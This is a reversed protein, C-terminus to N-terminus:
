NVDPSVWYSVANATLPDFNKDLMLNMWAKLDTRINTPFFSRQMLILRRCLPAVYVADRGIDFPVTTVSEGAKTSFIVPDPGVMQFLKTMISNSEGLLRDFAELGFNEKEWLSPRRLTDQKGSYCCDFLMLHPINANQLKSHLDVAVTSFKGWDEMSINAPKRTFDGNPLYLVQLKKSSFGHGAYYFLLASNNIKAKQINSIMLDVAEIINKSHLFKQSTSKLMFGETAGWQVFIDKVLGASLNAEPLNDLGPFGDEYKEFELSYHENSVIIYFIKKGEFQGKSQLCTLSFITILLM